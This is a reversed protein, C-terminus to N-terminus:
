NLVKFEARRNKAWALENMAIDLPMEEGYSITELRDPNVGLSVLYDKVVQARRAGLAINYEDSGRSDCHGEIGIKMAPVTQLIIANDALIKRSEESLTSQDYAFHIRVLATTPTLTKMNQQTDDPKGAKHDLLGEEVNPMPKNSVDMTDVVPTKACGTALFAFLLALCFSYVNIMKKM